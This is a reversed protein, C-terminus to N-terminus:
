KRDAFLLRFLESQSNTLCHVLDHQVTTMVSLLQARIFAPSGIQETIEKIIEHSFIKGEFIGGIPLLENGKELKNILTLMEHPDQNTFFAMIPGFNFSHLPNDPSDPHIIERFHRTVIYRTEIGKNRAEYRLANLQNVKLNNYQCFLILNYDNIIRRYMWKNYQVQHSNDLDRKKVSVTSSFFRHADNKVIERWNLRAIRVTAAMNLKVQAPPRLELIAGFISKEMGFIPIYGDMWKRALKM